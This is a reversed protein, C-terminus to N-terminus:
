LACSLCGDRTCCRIKSSPVSGEWSIFKGAISGSTLRRQTVLSSAKLMGIDRGVEFTRLVCKSTYYKHKFCVAHSRGQICLLKFWHVMPVISGGWKGM